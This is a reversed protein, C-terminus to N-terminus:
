AASTLQRNVEEMNGLDFKIQHDACDFYKDDHTVAVITKGQSKLWPIIQTYFVHRFHPDQDAAWEDLVYIEKDELIASILALRKRQGMSFSVSEYGYEDLVVKQDLDFRRLMDNVKERDVEQGNKGVLSKYLYFDPLVIAMKNMYQSITAETVPEGDLLIQGSTPKYLGLLIHMFTSKGSGNGGTVFVVEGKKLSFNIRELTFQEASETYKFGIDAFHICDWHMDPQEHSIECNSYMQDDLQLSEIKQLSVKARIISQWLGMVYGFPGALYTLILLYSMVLHSSQMTQSVIIVAGLVLFILSQSINRNIDWSFGYRRESEKLNDLQPNLVNALYHKKRFSSLALQKSGELLGKYGEFVEDQRSRLAFADKSIRKMIVSTFVGAVVVTSIVIAFVIPSLYILYGFCAIMLLANYIFAPMEALANSIANVDNTLVNYLRSRGAKELTTFKSGLIRTVLSHRVGHISRSTFFSLAYSALMSSCLLFTLLGLYIGGTTLSFGQEGYEGVVHFLGLSAAATFVSLLGSILMIGKFKKLFFFLM